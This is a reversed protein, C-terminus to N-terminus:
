SSEWLLVTVYSLADFDVYPRLALSDDAEGVPLNPPYISRDLGSTVFRTGATVAVESRPDPTLDLLRGAGEGSAVGFGGRHRLGIATGPDTIPEVFSRDTSVITTVGVLGQGTVVPMGETLGAGSGKDIELVHDVLSRRDTVVRATVSPLGPAYEIKLADLLRELEVEADTRRGSQSGTASLQARLRENEAEVARYRTAGVVIAEVEDIAAATGDRAPEALDNAARRTPTFVAPEVHDVIMAAVSVALLLAVLRRTSSRRAAM